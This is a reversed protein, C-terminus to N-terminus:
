TFIELSNWSVAWAKLHNVCELTDLCLSKEGRIAQSGIFISILLIWTVNLSPIRIWRLSCCSLQCNGVHIILCLIVKAQPYMGKWFCFIKRRKSELSIMNFEVRSTLRKLLCSRYSLSDTIPKYNQPLNCCSANWYAIEFWFRFKPLPCQILWCCEKSIGSMWNSLIIYQFLNHVYWSHKGELMQHYWLGPLLTSSWALM